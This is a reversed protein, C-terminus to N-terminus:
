DPLLNLYVSHRGYTEFFPKFQVGDAHFRLTRPDGSLKAGPNAGQLSLPRWTNRPEPEQAALLVPGYFLSALNPQDMVPRLHFDLPLHLEVTDGSRWSRRVCLFTGPQAAQEVIQGNVRAQPRRAAWGPVRMRLEFNGQGHIVLKTTDGYPLDTQQTLSVGHATWNLRSPIFLNVYLVRDDPSHFYISDQLKTHSELATGNCCTFGDLRANSFQKRAGPNLPVHYTNGADNEAVTALIHNYLAREYYDFYRPEPRFCFLARTLKLLNYTACTENQGGHSFGNAFLSDPEATFWEANDPHRAGAVGGISYAYSRTCIEWFNAAVRWYDADGTARYIALAGLVQPIHQNAHKGRLTDVNRALGGPHQADGFFFGPNDFWKATELFKKDGTIRALRALVENLGGYEGAIYRNWMAARTSTSLRALRTHVWRAMGIVVPLAQPNGALEHADLLGALLKHLTYYPAWVQDNREGYSAGQELMIFQDPPYASLYGRGWNWYDTRLGTESLDSDYQTRGPGPPVAAPDACFPAGSNTPTGSMRSLADLTEVVYNLKARLNAQLEPDHDTGQVAQALATLYHGTAHGRLKVTQADWVGLPRAGSPQPQGYASRFAFLFRDPNSEALGRLFKDRNKQFPTPHGRPDPLLTVAHLTFPEIQSRPPSPATGGVRVTAKATFITGPVRGTLTFSDNTLALGNDRPAPWLVRVAPGTIGPPYLGAVQEPLHPLHGRPTDVTIEAVGLLQHAHAQSLRAVGTAAPVPLPNTAGPIVTADRTAEREKESASFLPSVLAAL